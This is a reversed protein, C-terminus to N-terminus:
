KETLDLFAVKSQGDPISVDTLQLKGNEDARLLTATYAEGSPIKARLANFEDVNKCPANNVAVIIDGIKYIEHHPKDPEYGVAIIGYNIGTDAIQRVFKITAPVYVQVNEDTDKLQMMHFQFANIAEDYMNVSLFKLAKGWVLYPDDTEKPEFKIRMKAKEQELKEKTEALKTKSKAIEQSKEIINEVKAKADEESMGGDKLIKITAGKESLAAVNNNGVIQSFENLLKQQQTYIREQQSKISLKDRTWQSINNSIVYLSPLYEKRYDELQSEDVPLLLECTGYFVSESDLKISERYIKLIKNLSTSDLVNDPEISNKLFQINSDYGKKITIALDYLANLDALNVDTDKLGESLESPVKKLFGAQTNITDSTRNLQSELENRKTKSTDSLYEEYASLTDEMSQFMNDLVTLNSEVYYILKNVDNKQEKTIPYSEEQQNNQQIVPHNKPNLTTYTGWIGLTVLICCGITILTRRWTLSHCFRNMIGPKSKLFSYLKILFADFFEVSSQIGNQYQIKAIDEPLNEPFTFGRLLIPIVNKNTSFAHAIELRVWDNEDNCRELANPSLIVVVDKCEEIVSYLKKNFEGSRLTEVDYFTKYGKDKLRDYITKASQEGGDRRYSIFIDYKKM